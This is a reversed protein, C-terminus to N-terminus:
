STGRLHFERAHEHPHACHEYGPPLLLVPPAETEVIFSEAPGISRSDINQGAFQWRQGHTHFNHWGMGLDLNFVYWRIKQGAHASITPTNGVFSRGNFCYSALSDGGQEVVSHQSPGVNVWTVQGGIGVVVNPPNFAYDVINVSATAPGGAQVTVTGSMMAGHVGCIYNYTAAVTFVPSAYTGFVNLPTSAFVPTGRFGSMQHIFIPVHLLHARDPLPQPAHALEDLTSLYPALEASVQDVVPKPLPMPMPMGGPMSMAANTIARMTM